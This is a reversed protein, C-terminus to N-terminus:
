VSVYPLLMFLTAQLKFNRRGKQSSRKQMKIPIEEQGRSFSRSELRISKTRNSEFNKNSKGNKRFEYVKGKKGNKKAAKELGKKAKEREFHLIKNFKNNM